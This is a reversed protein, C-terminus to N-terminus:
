ASLCLKITRRDAYRAAELKRITCHHRVEKGPSRGDLDTPGTPAGIDPDRYMHDSREVLGSDCRAIKLQVSNKRVAEAVYGWAEFIIWVHPYGEIVANYARRVSWPRTVILDVCAGDIRDCMQACDVRHVM